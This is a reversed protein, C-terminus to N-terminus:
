RLSLQQMQSLWERVGEPAQAGRNKSDESM